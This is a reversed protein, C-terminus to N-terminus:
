ESQPLQDEATQGTAGTQEEPGVEEPLLNFRRETSSGLNYGSAALVGALLAASALHLKEYSTGSAVASLNAAVAILGFGVIAKGRRISRDLVAVENLQEGVDNRSENM